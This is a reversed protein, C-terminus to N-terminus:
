FNFPLESQEASVFEGRSEKTKKIVAYIQNWAAVLCGNVFGEDYNQIPTDIPYYGRSAVAEQIEKENVNYAVMLDNLKRMADSGLDATKNENAPVSTSKKPESVKNDNAKSVNTNNINLNNINVNQTSVTNEEKVSSSSEIIPAIVSYDFATEEPLDYRNKADWCPHHTTYMVRKGGQAKHKKGQDDTAVVITKYNAFLLMDSWEKILPATQSATKKGLKLEWRDYAGLEDPQEFKRLQAHATLVVNIGKDKVDSLLNLFRGFEEKSYVYGNGYGFDEIGKKGRAQCVHEVCLNEAWDITDIVLTKCLGPTNMVEKIQEIIMTWSSPRKTRAVNLEATSGETDIFLPEPFQAAFTSKGIGEPGYIVVKKASKIKGRIIEM